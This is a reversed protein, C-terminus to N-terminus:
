LAEEFKSAFIKVHFRREACYGPYMFSKIPYKVKVVSLRGAISSISKNGFREGLEPM